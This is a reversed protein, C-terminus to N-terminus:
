DTFLYNILAKILLLRKNAYLLSKASGPKLGLLGYQTQSIYSHEVEM